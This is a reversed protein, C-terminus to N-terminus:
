SHIIKMTNTFVLYSMEDPKILSLECEWKANPLLIEGKFSDSDDELRSLVLQTSFELSKKGYAKYLAEKGGWFLQLTRQKNISKELISLESQHLIRLAVKALQLRTSEVDIGIPHNPHFCFAVWNASHSISIFGTKNVPWPKGFADRELTFGSGMTENILLNMAEKEVQKSQSSNALAKEDEIRMWSVIGNGALNNFEQKIIGSM